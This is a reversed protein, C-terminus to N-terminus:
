VRRRRRRRVVANDAVMETDALLDALAGEADDELTRVVGYRM